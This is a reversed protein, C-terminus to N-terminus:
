LLDAPADQSILIAKQKEESLSRFWEIFRKDKESLDNLDDGVTATKEKQERGFVTDITVGLANALKTATKVSITGTEGKGKLNSMTTNWVGAANCLEEMSKFGHEKALSEIHNYLIFM